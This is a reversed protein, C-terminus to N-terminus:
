SKYWTLSYRWLPHRRLSAGPLLSNCATRIERMTEKPDETPAEVEVYGRLSRLLWNAPVAAAALAYDGLTHARYLGVIALVGGPRLLSRFRALASRLPLHHLTAVSAILDFSEEPFPHTMVDDEVFTIRPSSGTPARACALADHDVDIAIVKPCSRALQLALLGQGCGVDLAQRCNSPISRLVLDHYQM